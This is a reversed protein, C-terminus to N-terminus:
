DNNDVFLSQNNFHVVDLPLRDMCIRSSIVFIKNVFMVHIIFQLSLM